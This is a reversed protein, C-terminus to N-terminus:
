HLEGLHWEQSQLSLEHIVLSLLDEHLHSVITTPSSFPGDSSEGVRHEATSDLPRPSSPAENWQIQMGQMM